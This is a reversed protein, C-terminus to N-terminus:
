VKFSTALTGIIMAWGDVLVFLMIKFPLSIIVPSLMMMGMAMLVSAVVLDIVLFPIFLMFGIQFATKLESTVFAPVLVLFPVDAASNVDPTDSIKLFLNLDSERTQAMM